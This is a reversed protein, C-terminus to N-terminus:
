RPAPLVAEDFALQSPGRQTGFEADCREVDHVLVENVGRRVRRRHPRNELVETDVCTYHRNRRRGRAPLRVCGVVFPNASVEGVSM